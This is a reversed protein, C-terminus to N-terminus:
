KIFFNQNTGFLCFVLEFFPYRFDALIIREFALESHHDVATGSRCGFKESAHYLNFISALNITIYTSAGDHAGVREWNFDRFHWSTHIQTTQVKRAYIHRDGIYYHTVSFM